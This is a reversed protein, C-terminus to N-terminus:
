VFVLGNVKLEEIYRLLIAIVGIYVMVFGAGILVM